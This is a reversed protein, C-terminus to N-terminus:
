ESRPIPLASRDPRLLKPADLRPAPLVAPQSTEPEFTETDRSERLSTEPAAHEPRDQWYKRVAEDRDRYPDATAIRGAMQPQAQRAAREGPRIEIQGTWDRGASRKAAADQQWEHRVPLTGPAADASPESADPSLARTGVSPAGRYRQFQPRGPTASRMSRQALGTSPSERQTNRQTLKQWSEKLSNGLRQLVHGRDPNTGSVEAPPVLPPETSRQTGRATAPQQAPPRPFRPTPSTPFQPTHRAAPAPPLLPTETPPVLPPGSPRGPGSARTGPSPVPQPVPDSRFAGYFPMGTAAAPTRLSIREARRMSRGQCGALLSLSALTLLVGAAARRGFSWKGIHM